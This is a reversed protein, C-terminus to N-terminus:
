STKYGATFVCMKETTFKTMKVRSDAPVSKNKSFTQLPWKLSPPQWKPKMCPFQLESHLSNQHFQQGDSCYASQLMLATKRYLAKNCNDDIMREFLTICLDDCLFLPCIWLSNLFDCTQINVMLNGYVLCFRPVSGQSIHVKTCKQLSSKCLWELIHVDFYGWKTLPRKHFIGDGGEILPCKTSGSNLDSGLYDLLGWFAVNRSCSVHHM